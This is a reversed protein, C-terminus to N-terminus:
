ELDRKMDVMRREDQAGLEGKERKKDILSKLASGARDEVKRHLTFEDVLGYEEEERSMAMVRVVNLGTLGIKETLNDVAVNSTATVLIRPYVGAHHLYYVLGATTHTKGTGPPGQILSVPHKFCLEIADRQSQNFSRLGPVVPWKTVRVEKSEETLIKGKGHGKKLMTVERHPLPILSSLEPNRGLLVDKIPLDKSKISQYMKIAELRRKFPIPLFTFTILFREGSMFTEQMKIREM